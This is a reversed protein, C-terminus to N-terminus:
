RAAILEKAAEPATLDGYKKIRVPTIRITQPYREGFSSAAIGIDSMAVAYKGCFERSLGETSALVEARGEILVSCMQGATQEVAFAVDPMQQLNHVKKASPKSYITIASGDWLFWVPVLHPGGGPHDTGLWGVHARRLAADVEMDCAVGRGAVESMNRMDTPVDYSGGGPQM